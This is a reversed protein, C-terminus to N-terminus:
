SERLSMSIPSLALKPDNVPVQYQAEAFIDAADPSGFYV